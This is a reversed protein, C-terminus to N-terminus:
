ARPVGGRTPPLQPLERPGSAVSLWSWRGACSRPRTPRDLGSSRQRFRSCAYICASAVLGWDCSVVETTQLWQSTPHKTVCLRSICVVALLGQSKLSPRPGRDGRVSGAKGDEQDGCLKVCVSIRSIQNRRGRWHSGDGVLTSNLSGPWSADFASGVRGRGVGGGAGLGM